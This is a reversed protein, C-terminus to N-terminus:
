ASECRVVGPRDARLLIGDGGAFGVSHFCPARAVERFSWRAHMRLSATNSANVVYWARPSRLWIWELRADTLASGVGMRRREPLVGVGGLYHGAPATGSAHGWLHTKRWGVVNGGVEAVVVCVDASGIARLPWEGDSAGSRGCAEQIKRIAPADDLRAARLAVRDSM